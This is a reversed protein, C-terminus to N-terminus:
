IEVGRVWRWLRKHQELFLFTVITHPGLRMFSPVWGRFMWKVGETRILERTIHVLGGGGHSSMVRTKIVDVPSCISTAMFGAGFSALIHVATGDKLDTHVLIAAKFGDYSVLQAASMLLARVANPGVGRFLSAAGESRVMRILGDMANAYNRRKAAPLSADNQMRVNIIDAPTGAIGGIFGSTLGMAILAPLTPATTSRNKLTEYIGFRTTSYTLQRLLSASLGSYLGKLGDSVVIHRFMQAMNLRTGHHQTQLRVKIRTLPPAGLDLPHTVCAAFCSASGGFWFPYAITRTRPSADKKVQAATTAM